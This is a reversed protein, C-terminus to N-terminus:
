RRPRALIRRPAASPVGRPSLTQAKGPFRARRPMETQVRAAAEPRVKCCPCTANGPERSTVSTMARAGRGGPGRRADRHAGLRAGRGRRLSWRAGDNERSLIRPDRTLARRSVSVRAVRRCFLGMGEDNKTANRAGAPVERESKTAVVRGAAACEGRRRRRRADAWSGGDTLIPFFALPFCRRPADDSRRRTGRGGKGGARRAETERGCGGGGRRQGRSAGRGEGRAASM